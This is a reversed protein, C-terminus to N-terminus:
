FPPSELCGQAAPRTHASPLSPWRTTACQHQAVVDTDRTGAPFRTITTADRPGDLELHGNIYRLDYTPLDAVQALAEGLPALPTPDVHAPSAARDADLGALTFRGCQKCAKGRVRRTVADPGADGTTELHRALWTPMSRTM